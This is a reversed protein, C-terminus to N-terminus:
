GANWAKSLSIAQYLKGIFCNFLSNKLIILKMNLIFFFLKSLFKARDGGKLSCGSDPKNSFFRAMVQICRAALTPPSNGIRDWDPDEACIQDAPFFHSKEAPPWKKYNQESGADPASLSVADSNSISGPFYAKYVEPAVDQLLHM